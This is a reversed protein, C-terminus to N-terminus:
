KIRRKAMAMLEARAYHLRSWATNEPCGAIKSIEEIPIGEIEFLVLVLRKKPSLKGIMEDLIQLRESRESPDPAPPPLPERVLLTSLLGRVRRRRAIRGAHRAAIRYIWTSLRAEGRFRALSRYVAVFVEQAADERDETPVGFASLFRHVVPAYRDYLGRWATADGRRCRTVLELDGNPGSSSGSQVARILGPTNM